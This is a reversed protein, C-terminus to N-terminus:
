KSSKLLQGAEEVTAIKRGLLEALAVGEEIVQANDRAVTGDARWLSNEFGLRVHGGLSMALAACAREQSGFACISWRHDQENAEVFSVLDKPDSQQNDTYRGLVFLVNHKGKPILGQDCLGNFTTVEEPSYVIFQPACNAELYEYVLESSAKSEEQNPFFEKVAMSISSPKLERVLARQEAPTYIGIAETTVQVVLQDGVRESLVSLAERYLGTDLSHKQEGDRVHFHIANAGTKLCQLAVEATEEPTVPIAPHDAKTRRAGNPAVMLVLPESM